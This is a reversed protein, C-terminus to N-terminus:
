RKKLIQYVCEEDSENIYSSTHLKIFHKKIQEEVYKYTLKLPHGSDYYRDHIENVNEKLLFKDHFIFIGGTEIMDAIKQIIVDVDFCHEIVNIMVVLDYKHPIEFNEIPSSIINAKLGGLNGTKYTCNVTHQIYDNILPDLLDISKIRRYIQPLILRLNTFPGCGLEIVRLDDNTISFNIQKYGGFHNEHFENRDTAMGKAPSDCWTKREYHQAEEWREQTVKPIGVDEILYKKDNKDAIKKLAVDGEFININEDVFAIMERYKDAV